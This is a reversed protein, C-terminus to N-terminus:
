GVLAFILTQLFQAPVLILPTFLDLDMGLRSGIFPVLFLGGLVIFIGFRELRALRVALPFPLLGVAVRGGDLPPIPLMNFVGIILNFAMLNMLNFFVWRQAEAPLLNVLHFLLGAAVALLLNIGPGAAAVLVMDRRPNRLRAFNVPVPKAFGFMAQGGSALLLLAPLLITGFLDIHRFPNFTVRGLRKATDDGLRWAAWGHAAEHLTVALLVPIAWVSATLAMSQLNM